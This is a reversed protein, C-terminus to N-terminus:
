SYVEDPIQVRGTGERSCICDAALGLSVSACCASPLVKLGSPLVKLVSPLVKQVLPLVKLIFQVSIFTIKYHDSTM